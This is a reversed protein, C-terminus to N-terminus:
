VPLRTIAAPQTGLSRRLGTLRTSAAARHQLYLATLVWQRTIPAPRSASSPMRVGEATNRGIPYGGDPPPSLAQATPLVASALRVAFSFIISQSKKAAILPNM